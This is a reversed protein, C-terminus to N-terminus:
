YSAGESSCISALNTNKCHFSCGNEHLWSVIRSLNTMKAQKISFSVDRHLLSFSTIFYLMEETFKLKFAAKVIRLYLSCRCFIVRM